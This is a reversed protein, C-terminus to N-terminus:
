MLRGQVIGWNINKFFSEIYDPRKLGYDIMFAHEWVDMVLLPTCGALHGTDHEGVWTNYLDGTINDAYLIVWGVGRMKGTAKFDEEWAAYSGFKEALKKGLKSEKDFQTKGGLNEFYYEHLRMGDFEWGFHRKLEAYEPNAADKVKKGLLDILKNTNNVYGEYLTFHNKLLTDSFGPMGILSTFDKTKYVM